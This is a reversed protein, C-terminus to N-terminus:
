GAPVPPEEEAPATPDDIAQGSLTTLLSAASALSQEILELRAKRHDSLRVEGLINIPRIAIALDRQSDTILQLATLM